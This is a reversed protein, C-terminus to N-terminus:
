PEIFDINIEYKATQNKIVKIRALSLCLHDDLLHIGVAAHAVVDKLIQM